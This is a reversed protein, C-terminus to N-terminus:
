DHSQERWLLLHQPGRERFRDLIVSLSVTRGLQLPLGYYPALLYSLRFRKGRLSELLLEEREDPVYIIAGANLAEALSHM